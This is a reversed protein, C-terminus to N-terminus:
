HDRKIDRKFREYFISKKKMEKMIENMENGCDELKHKLKNLISSELNNNKMDDIKIKNLIKHIIYEIESKVFDDIESEKIKNEDSDDYDSDDYIYNKAERLEKKLKM